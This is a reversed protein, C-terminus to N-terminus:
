GESNKIDDFQENIDNQKALANADNLDLSDEEKSLQEVGQIADKLANEKM